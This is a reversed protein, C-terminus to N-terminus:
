GRKLDLIRQKRASINSLVPRTRKKQGRNEEQWKLWANLKDIKKENEVLEHENKDFDKKNIITTKGINKDYVWVKGVPTKVVPMPITGKPEKVEEMEEVPVEKKIPEVEPLSPEDFTKEEEVDEEPKNLNRKIYSLLDEKPVDEKLSPEGKPEQKEKRIKRPAEDKRDVVGVRTLYVYEGDEKESRIEWIDNEMIAQLNEPVRGPAKTNLSIAIGEGAPNPVRKFQSNAWRNWLSKKIRIDDENEYYYQVGSHSKSVSVWDGIAGVQKSETETSEMPGTPGKQGFVYSSMFQKYEEEFNGDRLLGLGDVEKFGALARAWDDLQYTKFAKNITKYTENIKDVREGLQENIDKALDHLRKYKKFLIRKTKGKMKEWIDSWIGAYKEIPKNSIDSAYKDLLGADEILGLSDLVDAMFIAEKISLAPPTFDKLMFDEMSM